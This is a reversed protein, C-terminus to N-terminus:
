GAEERGECGQGEGGAWLEGENAESAAGDGGEYSYAGGDAQKVFGYGTSAKVFAVGVETCIRCLQVIHEEQLYDNEFIVKLIGTRGDSAGGVQTTTGTAADNVAKIEDRVYDWDGGLVKGINVVMDIEHAGSQVAERAEAVKVSTTSNGHPFGIVACILVDTGALIDRAAPISYPKICAAAVNYRKAIQLGAEIETDTMTPHLLSHDILKAIAGLSIKTTSPDAM